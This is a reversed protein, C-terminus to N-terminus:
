RSVLPSNTALQVDMPIQRVGDGACQESVDPPTRDTLFSGHGVASGSREGRIEWTGETLVYHFDFTYAITTGDAFTIAGRGPRTTDAHLCSGDVGHVASRLKVPASSVQKGNLDGSCTGTADYWTSLSQQTNTAPPSFGVTGKFSCIGDFSDLREKGTAPALSLGMLVTTVGVVGVALRIGWRRSKSM